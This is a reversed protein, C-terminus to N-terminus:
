TGAKLDKGNVKLDGTTELKTAQDKGLRWIMGVNAKSLMDRGKLSPRGYDISIKSKKVTLEAKGRGGQAAGHSAMTAESSAPKANDSSNNTGSSANGEKYEKLWAVDVMDANRKKKEELLWTGRENFGEGGTPNKHCFTCDKAPLGLSTAKKLFPPYTSATPALGVLYIFAFGVTIMLRFSNKRM